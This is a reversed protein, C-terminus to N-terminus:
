QKTYYRYHYGYGNRYYYRRLGRRHATAIIGAVPTKYRSLNRIAQEVLTRPTVNMRVVLLVEDGRGGVIGADALEVVPPTDIIIHDYQRRLEGLLTTMERSSLLQVSRDNARGGAQIVHLANEGVGQIIQALDARKELYGLLGPSDPLSLLKSFQPLRLDCEVVVTRRNHLEAFSLGLNLSTLTKGEQPTASTIVHVLHRRQEWRALLGTRIARYEEAAVSAPRSLAVLRDDIATLDTQLPIRQDRVPRSAQPRQVDSWSAAEIAQVSLSREQKASAAPAPAVQDPTRAPAERVAPNAAFPKASTQQPLQPTTPPPDPQVSPSQTATPQVQSLEEVQQGLSEIQQQVREILREADAKPQELQPAPIPATAPATVCPAADVPPSATTQASEAPPATVATDAPPVAPADAPASNTARRPRKANGGRNMADFVYGM